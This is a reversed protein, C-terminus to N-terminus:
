LPRVRTLDTDGLPYQRYIRILACVFIAYLATTTAGSIVLPISSFPLSASIRAVEVVYMLVVDTIWGLPIGILPITSGFVGSLFTLAMSLPVIPLVLVNAIVSVTSLLGMVHLIYPTVFLQIGVTTAVIDRLSFRDTVWSLKRRVIPVVYVLGIMALVSLHFSVDSALIRPNHLVMLFVACLLARSVDYRRASYRAFVLLLAMISARVTTAAAGTLLAFLIIAIGGCLPAYTVSVYAFLKMLVDAVISVNYGSLAVIHSLGSIRFDDLITPNLGSVDGAVVGIGLSSAPETVVSGVSESFWTRIRYLASIAPHGVDRERVSIKPRQMIHSVGDKELYSVYDFLPGGAYSEFNRPKEIDGYLTLADGYGYSPYLPTRVLIKGSVVYGDVSSIDVVFTQSSLKTKPYTSVVGEYQRVVGEYPVLPSDTEISTMRLVGLGFSVLVIGVIAVTHYQSSAGRLRDISAYVSLSLGVLLILLTISLEGVYPAILVGILFPVTVYYLLRTTM